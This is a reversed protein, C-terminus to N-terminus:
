HEKEEAEKRVSERERRKDRWDPGEVKREEVSKEIQDRIKEREEDIEREKIQIGEWQLIVPLSSASAAALTRISERRKARGRPKKDTRKEM